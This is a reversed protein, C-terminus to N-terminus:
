ELPAIGVRYEVTLVAKQERLEALNFRLGSLRATISALDDRYDAEIEEITRIREVIGIDLRLRERRAGIDTTLQAIQVNASAIDDQAEEIVVQRERIMRVAADPALSPTELAQDLKIEAIETQLVEIQEGVFVIAERLGDISATMGAIDATAAEELQVVTLAERAIRSEEEYRSKREQLALQTEAIAGQLEAIDVDLGAKAIQYDSKIKRKRIEEQEKRAAEEEKRADKAKILLVSALYWDLYKQQYGLADLGSTYDGVSIVDQKFLKDLTARTPREIKADRAIDWTDLLKEIEGATLGLAGMQTRANAVSIEQHIYMNKIYKVQENVYKQEAKMTERSVLYEALTDPYGIERLWYRAEDARLAGVNYFSLIDTKTAERDETTEFRVTFETMREADRDNYGLDLYNRKVEARSLVGLGYMRRVDVRTLPVYAIKAIHDRFTEPIDSIRLLEKFEALGFEPVRHLMELGTTLGPLEWHARWYKRSWGEVDGQKEMWEAFEPPFDADYGWKAAVDDRWAERVAMRILDGPGPIMTALARAIQIDALPFGRKRLEEETAAPSEDFRHEAAFLDTPALRPRLVEEWKAIMTETWGLDFLYDRLLGAGALDRYIMAVAASPDPRAPHIIRNIRFTIPAFLSGTISGILAGGASTGLLGLAAVGFEGTEDLAHNILDKIEQPQGDLDRVWRLFPGFVRLAGPHLFHMFQELMWTLWDATPEAVHNHLWAFFREITAEFKEGLGGPKGPPPPPTIISTPKAM